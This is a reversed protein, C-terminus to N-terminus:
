NMFRLEYGTRERFQSRLNQQDPPSTDMEVAVAREKALFRPGKRIKGFPSLLRRAEECIAYQDPKPGVKLPWGTDSELRELLGRYREGVEPSIFSLRIIPGTAEQGPHLGVRSPRHPADQFAEQIKGYTLNIELRGESDREKRAAPTSKKVQLAVQFGSEEEIAQAADEWATKEQRELDRSIWLVVSREQLRISPPRGLLESNPLKGAILQNLAAENPNPHIAYTWGTEFFAENLAERYHQGAREPFAFYLELHPIGPEFSKKLLGAEAPLARDIRALLANQEMPGGSPIEEAAAAFHFPRRPDEALHSSTRLTEDFAGAEQDSPETGHWIRYIEEASFSSGRQYTALLHNRLLAADFPGEGIGTARLRRFKTSSAGGLVFGHTHGDRPLHVRGLRERLLLGMLEERAEVNGHVLLTDSPSLARILGAIQNGDAHASLGYKEVRCHVPVERGDLILTGSNDEAAQLLRRGPSEEDQYGTIAILHERGDLLARAYIPSAGGTLMGSSAVVVCPPGELIEKRRRGGAVPKVNELVDFFPDGFREVRRKLRSQLYVPYERYVQCVNRVLGDVHIPFPDLRKTLMAQILTLIVEQARGIAFAPILVKGGASVTEGVMRVLREEESARSPHLRAGYTSETVVLHPRFKPATMGPITRQNGVSIDGTFLVRGAAGELGIACAGLIHGALFFTARPGGPVPFFPQYPKIPIARALLAEVAARSYLPVEGDMESESEMIKLADLLQIRMLALTPPTAYVPATSFRQTLVPLAGLHDLHAHTILIALPGGGEELAALDPPREPLPGQLRIGCDIVLKIGDMELLACSAGISQAGGLFRVKVVQHDKVLQIIPSCGQIM